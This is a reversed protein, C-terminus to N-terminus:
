GCRVYLDRLFFKTYKTGKTTLFSLFGHTFYGDWDTIFGDAAQFDAVGNGQGTDHDGAAIGDVLPHDFGKDLLGAWLLTIVQFNILSELWDEIAANDVV